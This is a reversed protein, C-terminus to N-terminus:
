PQVVKNIRGSGFLPVEKHPETRDNSVILLTGTVARAEDEIRDGLVSVDIRYTADDEAHEFRAAFPGDTVRVSQIEFDPQTSRVTIRVAKDGSVKLNFFPNTPSVELTGKVKCAYPIAVQRPRDLGTTVVLNGANSGVKRGLCRVRYGRPQGPASPLAAIETDAAPKEDLRPRAQDALVGVLHVERARAEGFPMALEITPADFALLPEVEAVIQLTATPLGPDNSHVDLGERLPGYLDSRCTVVLATSAGPALSSADSRGSCFRSAAITGLALAATGDNHVRVMGRMEQDQVGRGLDLRAPEFRLRPASVKTAKGQGGDRCGPLAVFAVLIKAVLTVFSVSGSRFGFPGPESVRRAGDRRGERGKHNM